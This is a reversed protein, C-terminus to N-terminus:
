TKPRVILLQYERVGIGLVFDIWRELQVLEQHQIQLVNERVGSPKSALVERTHVLLPTDTVTPTGKAFDFGRDEQATGHDDRPPGAGTWYLAVAVISVIVLLSVTGDL